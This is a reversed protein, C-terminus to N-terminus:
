FLSITITRPACIENLVKLLISTIMLSLVDNEWPSGSSYLISWTWYRWWVSGYVEYRWCHFTQYQFGTFVEMFLFSLFINSFCHRLSTMFLHKILPGCKLLCYHWILELLESIKASNGKWTRLLIWKHSSWQRIPHGNCMKPSIGRCVSIHQWDQFKGTVRLMSTWIPSPYREFIM